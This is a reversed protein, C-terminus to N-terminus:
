TKEREFERKAADLEAQVRDVQAFANRLTSEMLNQEYQASCRAILQTRSRINLRKYVHSLHFKITKVKLNLSAAIEVNSKGKLVENVVKLQAPSLVSLM